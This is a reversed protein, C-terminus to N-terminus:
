VLKGIDSPTLIKRITRPWGTLCLSLIGGIARLWDIYFPSSIRILWDML